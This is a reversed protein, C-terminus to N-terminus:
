EIVRTDVETTKSDGDTYVSINQQLLMASRGLKNGAEGGTPLEDKYGGLDMITQLYRHRATWHPNEVEGFKNSSTTTARVGEKLYGVIDQEPFSTHVLTTLRDKRSVIEPLTQEMMVELENDKNAYNRRLKRDYELQPKKKV